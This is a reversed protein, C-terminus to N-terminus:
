GNGNFDLVAFSLAWLLIYLQNMLKPMRLDIFM